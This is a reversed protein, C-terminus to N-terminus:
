IALRVNEYKEIILEVLNLGNLIREIDSVNIDFLAIGNRNFLKTQVLKGYREGNSKKWGTIQTKTFLIGTRMNHFNLKAAFHNIQEVSVAKSDFYKCEIGIYDGLGRVFLDQKTLNRIIVDFEYTRDGTWLNVIPEFGEISSFLFAAFQNWEKADNNEKISEYMVKFLDLKPKYSQYDILRPIQYGKSRIVYILGEPSYIKETSDKLVEMAQKHLQELSIYPIDFYLQLVQLVNSKLADPICLNGNAQKTQYHESIIDDLFALIWYYFSEDYKKLSFSIDGVWFLADGKHIRENHICELELTRSHLEKFTHIAFQLQKLNKLMIGFQRFLLQDAENNFPDDEDNGKNTITKLSSIIENLQHYPITLSGQEAKYIWTNMLTKIKEKNM